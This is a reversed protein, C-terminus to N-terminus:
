AWDMRDRFPNNTRDLRGYYWDFVAKTAWAWDANFRHPWIEQEFTALRRM